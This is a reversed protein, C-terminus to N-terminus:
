AASAGRDPPVPYKGVLRGTGHDQDDPIGWISAPFQKPKLPRVRAVAQALSGVVIGEDKGQGTFSVTFPM